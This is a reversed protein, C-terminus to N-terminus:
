VQVRQKTWRNLIAFPIGHVVFGNCGGPGLDDVLYGRPGDTPADDGKSEKGQRQGDQDQGRDRSDRHQQGEHRHSNEETADGQRDQENAAEAAQGHPHQLSIAGAWRSRIATQIGSM